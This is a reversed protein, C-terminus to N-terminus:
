STPIKKVLSQKKMQMQQSTRAAHPDSSQEWYRWLSIDGLDLANWYLDLMQPDLVLIGDRTVGPPPPVLAAFRAYVEARENNETRSLLHWLTLGDSPRAESLVTDLAEAHV